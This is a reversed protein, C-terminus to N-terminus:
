RAGELEEVRNMLDALPATLDLIREASARSVEPLTVLEKARQEANRNAGMALVANPKQLQRM